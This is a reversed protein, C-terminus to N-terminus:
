VCRSAHCGLASPWPSSGDLTTLMYKQPQNILVIDWLHVRQDAARRKGEGGQMLRPTNCDMLSCHVLARACVCVCVCVSMRVRVRAYKHTLRM